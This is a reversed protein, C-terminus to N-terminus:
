MFYINPVIDCPVLVSGVKIMHPRPRAKAVIRAMSTKGTGPNGLFLMNLGQQSKFGHEARLRDVAVKKCLSRLMAKVPELGVVASLEADLFERLGDVGGRGGGRGGGAELGRGAQAAGGNGAPEDGSRRRDGAPVSPAPDDKPRRPRPPAKFPAIPENAGARGDMPVWLAGGGVGGGRADGDRADGHGDSAPPQERPKAPKPKAPARPLDLKDFTLRVEETNMRKDEQEDSQMVGAIVEAADLQDKEVAYDYPSRGQEDEISTSAGSRLLLRIVELNGGVAAFHLSTKGADDQADPRAQYQLLLRVLEINGSLAALHLPTSKTKKAAMHASARNDLLIRSCELNGQYCAVHLLTMGAGNTGAMNVPFCNAVERIRRALRRHDNSKVSEYAEIDIDTM